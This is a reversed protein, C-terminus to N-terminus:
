KLDCNILYDTGIPWPLMLNQNLHSFLYKRAGSSSPEAESTSSERRGLQHKFKDNAMYEARSAEMVMREMEKETLEVDSCFRAEALLAQEYEILNNSYLRFILLSNILLKTDFWM